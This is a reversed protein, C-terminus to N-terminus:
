LGGRARPGRTGMRAALLGCAATAATLVIGWSVDAVVLKFTWGRLVAYNTFAFTGYALGGILAGNLLALRIGGTEMAPLVAFYVIGAAYTLYFLAAAGSRPTERLLEGVQQDYMPQVVLRIWFIDLLLFAVLVGISARFLIM